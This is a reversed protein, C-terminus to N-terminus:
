ALPVGVFTTQGKRVIELLVAGRERAGGGDIMKEVEAPSTVAKGDVKQVLDGPRLHERRPDPQEASVVVVGKLGDKIGFQKRLEPTVKALKANLRKSAQADPEDTDSREVAQAVKEQKPQKAIHVSTTRKSGDRWIEVNSATGAPARAVIRPLDRVDKVPEGAFGTIIDGVKFDAKSAPGNPVIQAILAGTAKELGMAKAIEPTVSQISVGLWGREVQGSTRLAAL